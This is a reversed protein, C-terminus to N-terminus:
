HQPNSEEQLNHQCEEFKNQFSDTLEKTKFRVALQEVKGEGDSYDTATWVLSNNSTSLTSIKIETSIVHNACVKLVQDRRMLVRYYGKEKHFLIKIDGVGREKWQGVARDWRYLKAREKFLIEEDEEGSKVEVEPLSVIPEFHVDDSHVVEEDSGDADEGKKNQSLTGFVAAGTNAWQFNTDKSGFAFDGSNTSALDAFSVGSVEGLGFSFSPTSFGKSDTKPLEQKSSLDVPEQSISTTSDPEQKPPLSVSTEAASVIAAEPSSTVDAEPVGKAEKVKRVETDFDELNDKDEDTDSGLGCFFTPPLKLSDAKAKEEPTPKKEWVIICDQDSEATPEKSCGSLRSSAKDKKDETYLIGNLNKVATEFDEDDIDSEDSVYGPKNKYCFFTLPLLLTEALAKQEPTPTAVYVILVDSSSDADPVDAAKDRAPMPQMLTSSSSSSSSSLSSVIPSQGSSQSPKQLANTTEADKFTANFDLTVKPPQKQVQQGQSQSANFSFGFLSGTSSTNGFAFPVQKESGFINKVVDSGFTFNAPSVLAKAPQDTPSPTSAETLSTDEEPQQDTREKTTEELIAIAAKGCSAARPTTGRSSVPTLLCDKAQAEKAEEFVEKFLDAAEQLKFRVAFCEVKGEGESFDHATWVWAREAGKMPQLNIDTTIRHNACLKLVQDRRMVVRASKNDLRQLIKLDGIGREKWQNSDKDFRYLKARHCFIAQENEEGSTVEVLDPLPVVPEFYQGDREEEQTVDSEEDTGVSVRSHNLKTPSKSPSPEPQFSFNFGSTSLDGFRFLNKKEPSSALPSAYVSDDLTEEHADGRMDYTDWEYTPETGDALAQKELDTTNIANSDDLPKAKDTLFTKLDKLGTKMEEAKQILHATRGTDVLKHPTQLPIDLLLCQCQDFKIKFEEAQEPTKFKVALQELKADGESFDNALWMWARDSGTLPKLNMTTTIWHNACVKLVQERRMLVRLKGNVENKLIKLNGVGREKWQGSTADFRYLKVRQSYLTKEDEEGTILDVKDPLQVIPEFHIDDREETKYLDDAAEQANSANVQNSSTFLKQGAGSFGKFNPDAKGFEIGETSKAIDAFSFSQVSQGLVKDPSQQIKEAQATTEATESGKNNTSTGKMFGTSMEKTKDPESIGFKFSLSGASVPFNFGDKVMKTEENTAPAKFTFNSASAKEDSIGFKFGKASFGCNFGAAPQGFNQSSNAKIGFTSPVEKSQSASSGPKAAQCAACTDKAADNIVLCTSCEWQGQKCSFMASLSQQTKGVEANHGFKFGSPTLAPPVVDKNTIQPNASHCAVCNPASAENRVLCSSCDWQGEKKAFQGGFNKQSNDAAAAFSFSAAQTGTTKSLLKTNQCSICKTALPENRVYCADCDWQGEKKAFQAGFNKQSNDAGAAFSFSAAQTGSVKSLPKTNQCSICKNASPENRVYCVDCDWQGAKKGFVAALNDGQASTNNTFGSSAINPQSIGAKAQSQTQCSSCHSVGADNKQSCKSCTWQDKDKLLQQGFALKNTASEKVFTFSPASICVSSISSSKNKNPTQCCVCSTSTPANTALCCDCQWEGRKLIFQSGFPLPAEKVKSADLKLNDKANKHQASIAPAEAMALLRQAEEFKAKFHAAEDVTKFRIALQEPKPMEDAYDYAHWVYSKDSTANPKLKMDANIYHNACIKLVQERRMLLRIKGSLRHRLIKVNGIGREKWEKTEADFRFLKARNCFMEEEDEEGTKVEVKEPLPIIPEFHPGDDDAVHESGADSEVSHNHADKTQTGFTPPKFTSKGPTKFTFINESQGFVLPNKDQSQTGTVTFGPSFSKEGFRFMNKEDSAINEFDSKKGQEQTPRDSTLLGLLSESGTYASSAGAHSSSFTFDGDNSKFNSNFKFTSSAPTSQMPVTFPSPKQGESTSQGLCGKGFDSVKPVEQKSHQMATSPKTFYGPEPLPPNTSAPPVNYNYFEENHPSLIAAAPSEFRLPPGYIEQPFVCGASSQQTPPTHMQQPYTYMHQQPPLRNMAYVSTKTPTINAAPRLLHQSNYAPSQGYYAAPGSTSVTLPVTYFNQTGQYSDAVTDSEFGENPWRHPSVNANSNNHKLEQVEKKLAEVKNCLVELLSKQDEAWRPPTKPSFRASKSPSITLKTPSPTSHKIASTTLVSHNEMFAPSHDDMAEGLSQKVSDLMEFVTEVPVPLSTAISPYASYEDCIMKLFGKCKLLCEQFEEQEEAPLCDNEIEEAKRQYILALNWYAVVNKVSEFAIIADETKGDVLDLTAFAICAEDELDKVESVKIDKNHFHKFLPDVPEPISKKQKVLDLLPLLKKWYHVCRGMYEKQDYFSNLSYGTKHLGRAWNVLVAPQLGHKEQARLTTLDHQIVSRLKASTGPLAKKTILSYVADWWSRQRDTFLQKCIPLPLCRPRNPDATTNNDQLQLYSTQVVALLFVELDLLCISEPINSELRSTEQPVRPFIQKLWKRLPPLTSLFHWQLGLWTLHQLDGNHIRLSGNDHQSLESLDPVRNEVYSIDDSGMFSDQMSLNDEFLFKLLISQGCQNAFTEIIESIFNQKGHSLTLLLHGSKSQRDFALEELFGQGNDDGKVPKSKPKPVQYALLYCLAAPEILAKWQVECSQAMKLLLTGAHMYYHGRMEYFTVSLDSADTGSVSQKVSLLAQDFRELAEKSKQVDKKSLTLFVVDCQALLLEKTIMRMNTNKQGQKSALYEKFVRVVCSCWEIDTRLARREPKLCHLVAEELRQNSLFLDVLKLNVYVDNPRAFLEAQILDFLQNWGAEGQSSLLQEKLRYIEPSGPFLKSAREVWYEARGDKINLTCILEAIRLTLDKQTPNLELSRKYCGVAKEVNGEIEFLQGLFRHAKPDREQVSIYSSVSRKALEYEKAEYYLRAFLFGKMSKERPSSASNQANEVYRQIEAKSRRM